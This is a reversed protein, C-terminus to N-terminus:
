EKDQKEEIKRYNIDLKSEEMYKNLDDTNSYRINNFYSHAALGFALYEKQRWCDTNHKSEFGLKSFNSIEYHNYGNEELKNKVLWYMKRETDEDPLIIKGSDVLEKLRTDEELILSYVSIHEPNKQIIKNLSDQVDDLTQDPLGIM